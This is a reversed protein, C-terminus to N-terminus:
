LGCDCRYCYTWELTFSSNPSGLFNCVPAELGGPSHMVTSQIFKPWTPWWVRGRFFPKPLSSSKVKVSLNNAWTWPGHFMIGFCAAQGAASCVAAGHQKNCGDDNHLRFLVRVWDHQVCHLGRGGCRAETRDGDLCKQRPQTRTPRPHPRM